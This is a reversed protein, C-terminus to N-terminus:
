GEASKMRQLNRKADAFNPDIRLAQELVLIAEARKNLRELTVALNNYAAVFNKDVNMAKRFMQEASGNEAQLLHWLGMGNLAHANNPASQLITAYHFRAQQTEGLAWLGNALDLRLDNRSPNTRVLERWIEVAQATEGLRSMSAALNIKATESKPDLRLLERFLATAEGFEGKQYMMLGLNNLTDMDEGDLEYARRYAAEAGSADGTAHRMVGLNFWYDARDSMAPQVSELVRLAEGTKGERHLSEALSLALDKSESGNNMARQIYTASRSDGAKLLTIAANRAMVENDPKLDSAKVYANASEQMQGNNEHARGLNNWTFADQPKINAARTFARVAEANQNVAMLSVGLNYWPEFIDPRVNTMSRYVAIAESHRAPESRLYATGLNNLIELDNPSLTRARELMAVARAVDGRELALFGLWSLAARSNGDKELLAAFITEAESRRDTNLLAVGLNVLTDVDGPNKEDAKKLLPIAKEYDEQENYLSGLAAMVDVRDPQLTLLQELARIAEGNRSVRRYALALDNWSRADNVDVRVAEELLAVADGPRNAKLYLHALWNRTPADMPHKARTEELTVIAGALDGAEFKAIAERVKMSAERNGVPPAPVTNEQLTFANATAPGVAIASALVLPWKWGMRNLM